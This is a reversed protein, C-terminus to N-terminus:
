ESYPNPQPCATYLIKTSNSDYDKPDTIVKHSDLNCIIYCSDEAITYLLLRKSM